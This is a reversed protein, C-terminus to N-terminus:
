ALQGAARKIQLTGEVFQFLEQRQGELSKEAEFGARPGVDGAQFQFNLFVCEDLLFLM